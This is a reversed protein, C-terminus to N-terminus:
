HFIVFDTTLSTNEWPTQLGKTEDIVKRRVDKLVQEIPMNPQRLGHILHKTFPSNRGDGDSAVKGPSTAFAILSGTPSEMQSLGRAASRFASAFPNNRCADLIVVAPRKATEIKELIAGVDLAQDAIEDERRIDAGVPILYNRGRVEVGHGAFYFLGSDADKLQDGFARVAQRMEGLSGDRIIQVEFGAAKIVEAIDNADNIPNLLKRERYNSNGIILAIRKQREGSAIIASRFVSTRANVVRGFEDIASLIFESSGTPVGRDVTFRGNSDVSAELPVNNIRVEMLRVQGTMQGTLIVRGQADPASANLSVSVPAPRRTPSYSPQPSLPPNIQGPRDCVTTYICKGTSCDSMARCEQSLVPLEVVFVSLLFIWRLVKSFFRPYIYAANMEFNNSKVFNM